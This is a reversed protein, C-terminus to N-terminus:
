LRPRHCPMQARLFELILPLLLGPSDLHLHHSQGPFKHLSISRRRESSLAALWTEASEAIGPFTHKEDALLVLTPPLKSILDMADKDELVRDPVSVMRVDHLFIIGENTASTGRRVMHAASSRSMFQYNPLNDISQLRADIAAELSSYTKPKKSTIVGSHLAFIRALTASESKYQAIGGAKNIAEEMPQRGAFAGRRYVQGAGLILQGLGDILVVGAFRHPVSGAVKTAIAQGLSHGCLFCHSWGLADLTQICSVAYADATYVHLHDSQGHGPLDMAFVEFGERTLLPALANFSAANDLSGHICFIRTHCTAPSTQQILKWHLGAVRIGNSLPSRGIRLQVEDPEMAPIHFV